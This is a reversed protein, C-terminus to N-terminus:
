EWKRGSFDYLDALRGRPRSLFFSKILPNNLLNDRRKTNNTRERTGPQPESPTSVTEGPSILHSEGREEAETHGDRRGRERERQRGTYATSLLYCFM